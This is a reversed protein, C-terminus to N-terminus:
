LTSLSILQANTLAAPYYAMRRIHGNLRTTSPSTPDHGIGLRSPSVPVSGSVDTSVAGGNLSFAFDNVKYRVAAKFVVGATIGTTKPIDSQVSGGSLVTYDLRTDSGSGRIMGRNNDTGDDWRLTTQAKPAFTEAEVVFSGEPANFFTAFNAGSVIASEATRTVQSGATPIFPSAGVGLECNAWKVAGSVTCTLSGASPTFTLQTLTTAGSGVIPGATSAGTLTITGTGYFSITWPAATVTVSQTSLSTGDILSNLFVNTRPDWLSLGLCELTAPNYDIAPENIAVVQMSGASDFRTSTTSRTFSILDAFTYPTLIAM